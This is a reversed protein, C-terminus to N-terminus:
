PLPCSRRQFVLDPGWQWLCVASASADIIHLLRVLPYFQMRKIPVEPLLCAASTAGCASVFSLLQEKALAEKVTLTSYLLLDHESCKDCPLPLLVRVAGGLWQCGGVAHLQDQIQFLHQFNDTPTVRNTDRLM